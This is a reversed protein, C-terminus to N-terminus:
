KPLGLAQMTPGSANQGHLIVQGTAVLLDCQDGSDAPMNTPLTALAKGTKANFVALTTCSGTDGVGAFVMGNAVALNSHVLNAGALPTTWLVAGTAVDLANIADAASATPRSAGFASTGAAATVGPTTGAATPLVTTWLPTGTFIDLAYVGGASDSVLLTTGIIRPSFATGNTQAGLQTSWGQGDKGAKAHANQQVVTRADSEVVFYWHGAVAVHPDIRTTFHVVSNGKSNGGDAVDFSMTWGGGSGDGTQSSAVVVPGEVSIFGRWGTAQDFFDLNRTWIVKGNTLDLGTLVGFHTSMDPYSIFVMTGDITMAPTTSNVTGKDLWKAKGNTSSEAAFGTTTTGVIRGGRAAPSERPVADQSGSWDPVLTGVNFPKLTREGPNANALTADRGYQQWPSAAGASGAVLVFAAAALARPRSSHLQLFSNSRNM